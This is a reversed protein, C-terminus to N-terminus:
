HPRIVGALTLAGIALFIISVAAFLVFPLPTVRNELASRGPDLPDHWVEVVQGVAYGAAKAEAWERVSANVSSVSVTHGTYRRGNVEYVYEVDPEYIFSYRLPVLGLRRWQGRVQSRTVRGTTREWARLGRAKLLARIVVAGNYAGAALFGDGVLMPEDIGAILM